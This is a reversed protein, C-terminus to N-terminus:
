FRQWAFFVYNYTGNSNRQTIRLAVRIEKPTGNEYGCNYTFWDGVDLDYSELAKLMAATVQKPLKSVFRFGAEQYAGANAFDAATASGMYQMEQNPVVDWEGPPVYKPVDDDLNDASVGGAVALAFGLVALYKKKM